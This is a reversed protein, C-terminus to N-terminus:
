PDDHKGYMERYLFAERRQALATAHNACNDNRRQLEGQLANRTDATLSPGQVERLECLDVSSMASLQGASYSVCGSAFAAAALSLGASTM